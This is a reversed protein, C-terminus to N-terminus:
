HGRIQMPPPFLSTLMTPLAMGPFPASVEVGAQLQSEFRVWCLPTSYFM